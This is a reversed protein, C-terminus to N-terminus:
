KMQSVLAINAERKMRKENEVKERELIDDRKNKEFTAKLYSEEDRKALEKDNKTIMNSFMEHKADSRQQIRAIKEFHEKRRNEEENLKESELHIFVKDDEKEKKLSDLKQQEQMNLSRM